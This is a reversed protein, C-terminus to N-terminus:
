AEVGFEYPPTLKIKILEGDLLYLSTSGVLKDDENYILERKNGTTKLTYIQLFISINGKDLHKRWKNQTIQINSNKFLLRDLTEMDINNVISDKNLGKIKIIEGDTTGNKLAYVKPALFLAKDYIGELKLSGLKSSDVLQDGLPGDFYLSDTDTYYLNPLQPNNKFQSM